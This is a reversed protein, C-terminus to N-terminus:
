MLSGKYAKLFFPFFTHKLAIKIWFIELHLGLPKVLIFLSGNSCKQYVNINSLIDAAMGHVGVM